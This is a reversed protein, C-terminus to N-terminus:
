VVVYEITTDFAPDSLTLLAMTVSGIAVPRVQVVADHLADPPAVHGNCVPAANTVAKCDAPPAVTGKNGFPPETEIESVHVTVAAPKQYAARLLNTLSLEQNAFDQFINLYDLVM